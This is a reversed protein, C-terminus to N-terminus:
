KQDEPIHKLDSHVFLYNWQENKEKGTYSKTFNTGSEKAKIFDKAITTNAFAPIMFYTSYREAPVAVWFQMVDTTDSLVIVSASDIRIDLDTLRNFVITVIEQLEDSKQMAMTRARVRELALQIQAERAQSEAKQLDLYRRYTQGFVAAFRKCIKKNKDSLPTVSFAFLTGESFYFDNHYITSPLTAIDYQV